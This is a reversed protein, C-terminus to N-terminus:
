TSARPAATATTTTRGSPCRRAPRRPRPRPPARTRAQPPLGGRPPAWGRPRRATSRATLSAAPRLWLLRLGSCGSAALAVRRLWLLWWLLWWQAPGRPRRATSRATLSQSVAAVFLVARPMSPGSAGSARGTAGLAGRACVACTGMDRGPTMDVDRIILSGQGVRSGGAVRCVTCVRARARGTKETQSGNSAVFSVRKSSPISGGGGFVHLQGCMCWGLRAGRGVDSRTSISL